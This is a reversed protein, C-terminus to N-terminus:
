TQNVEIKGAIIKEGIVDGDAEIGPTELWVAGEVQGLAHGQYIPVLGHPLKPRSLGLRKRHKRPAGCQPKEQGAEIVPQRCGLARKTTL